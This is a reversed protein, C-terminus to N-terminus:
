LLPLHMLAHLHQQLLVAALPSLFLLLLNLWFLNFFFLLTGVITGAFTISQRLTKHGNM